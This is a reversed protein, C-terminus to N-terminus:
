QFISEIFNTKGDFSWFYFDMETPDNLDQYGLASLNTALTSKKKTFMATVVRSLEEESFNLKFAGIIANQDVNFANAFSNSLYATLDGVKTLIEKKM